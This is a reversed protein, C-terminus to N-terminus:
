LLGRDKLVARTISGATRGSPNEGGELFTAFVYTRKGRTVYGVYWGYTATNNKLDGATGTKARLVSTSGPTDQVMIKKVINQTRPSFPVDGAQLRTLFRVQENPSVLLPGDLWFTTVDDGIQGNGYGLKQLYTRMREPGIEKALRQYYWVSSVQIASKLTHDRNWEEIPRKVGDWKYLHNEDKLVGTELGILSNVIKFTSCPPMARDAREPHYRLTRGTSVDHLVFTGRYAGFHRDLNLTGDAAAPAAAAKAKRPPAGGTGAKAAPPIAAAVAVLPLLCPLLLAPNRLTRM